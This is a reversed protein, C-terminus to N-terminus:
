PRVKAATAALSGGEALQKQGEEIRGRAKQRLENFRQYADTNMDLGLNYEENLWRAADMSEDFGERKMVADIVTGRDIDSGACGGYCRWVQWNRQDSEHIKFSPSREEHFPCCAALKGPGDSVLETGIQDRLYDELPVLEKIRDFFSTDRDLPAAM